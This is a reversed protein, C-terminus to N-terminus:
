ASWQDAFLEAQRLVTTVADERKEPPYGYKRLVRRVRVRLRARVGERVTWGSGRRAERQWVRSPTTGPTRRGRHQYGEWALDRGRAWPKM